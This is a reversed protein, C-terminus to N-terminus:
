GGASPPLAEMDVIRSAFLWRGDVQVLEDLYRGFVLVFPGDPGEHLMTFYTTSRATSGDITIDPVSLFHKHYVAPASTHSAAFAELAATGTHGFSHVGRRQVDFVGDPTFCAAWAVNDGYDLSQSYRVFLARIDREAELAALRELVDPTALVQGPASV